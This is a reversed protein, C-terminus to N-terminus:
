RARSWVDDSNEDRLVFGTAAGSPDRTFIRRSRLAEPTFFVDRTEAKLETESHGDRWGLLKTGERRVTYRASGFQYVGVLGDLADNPLTLAPPAARVADVHVLHLKWEGDIRQWTETMLYGAGPWPHGAAPVDDIHTVLALDGFVELAYERIQLPESGDPTLGALFKDRPTLEGEEVYTFDPTTVRAWEARGGNHVAVLLRQDEARFQVQLAARTTPHSPALNSTTSALGVALILSLM